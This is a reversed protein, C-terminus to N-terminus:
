YGNLREHVISELIQYSKEANALGFGYVPDWGPSGLDTCGEFLAQKIEHRSADPFASALQAIIAVIHPVAASTGPFNMPFDGAGSVGVNTPTSIDPKKILELTPHVILAPGQSSDLTIVDPSSSNVSAVTIIDPVAAHGFIAYQPTFIEPNSVLAPHQDRIFFELYLSDSILPETGLYLVGLHVILPSTNPNQITFHEFPDGFGDQIGDSMALVSGAADVAILDFDIAAQNFPESWQLTVIARSSPPIELTVFPLNMGSLDQLYGTAYPITFRAADLYHLISFNGAVTVYILDPYEALVEELHRAVDGKEFFPQAFFYVDDCIITCGLQALMSVVDQFNDSNGGYAAFYIEAEPAMDHIIEMIATGEDGNGLTLIHLSDPLEGAAQADAYSEAGNSIVGIKVGRGNAGFAQRISNSRVIVDGQTIISNGLPQNPDLPSSIHHLAEYSLDTFSLYYMDSSNRSPNMLITTAFVHPTFLGILVIFSLVQFLFRYLNLWDNFICTAMKIREIENDIPIIDFVVAVTSGNIDSIKEVAVDCIWPEIRGM